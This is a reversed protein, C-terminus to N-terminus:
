ILNPSVVLIYSGKAGTLIEMETLTIGVKLRSPVM